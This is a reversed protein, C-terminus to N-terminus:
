KNKQIDEFLTELIQNTRALKNAFPCKEAAATLVIKICTGRAAVHVTRMGAFLDVLAIDLALGESVATPAASHVPPQPKPRKKAAAGM